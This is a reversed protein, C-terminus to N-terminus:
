HVTKPAGCCKKFKKGSGCPCPDNRGVKPAAGLFGPHLAPIDYRGLDRRLQNFLQAVEWAKEAPHSALTRWSASSELTRNLLEFAEDKKRSDILMAALNVITEMSLPNSAHAKRLCDLAAKPRNIGRLINGLRFLSLWDDPNDRIKGRLDAYATALPQGAGGSSTVNGTTVLSKINKEGAEHACAVRLLEATLAMRAMPQFEFEEWAGCSLCPFEDAILPNGDKDDVMVGRADYDNTEGCAPCCLSLRLTDRDSVFGSKYFNEMAKQQRERQRLIREHVEPLDSGEADLLRCLRYYTGDIFGQKRRLEPRLKEILRQDPAARALDCWREIDEHILEDFCRLAFDAVADGGVDAIASGGYIKQTLDLEDWQAILADRAPEGINLLAEKAAECLYDGKTEGICGILPQTFEMWGLDGMLRALIIGGFTDQVEKIRSVLAVAVEERPFSKLRELLAGYHINTSVDLALLAIADEISLHAADVTKREFAAAVGALALAALEVPHENNRFVKSQRITDWALTSEPSRGHHTELLRLAAPLPTESLVIEDMEALPADSDFLPALETFCAVDYDDRCMFYLDAYADHGFLNSAMSNVIRELRGEKEAFSGDLLRPLIQPMLQVAPGFAHHRISSASFEDKGWSMHLAKELMPLADEPPLKDMYGLIVVVKEFSWPRATELYRGFTEAALKPLISALVRAPSNTLQSPWAGWQGAITSAFMSFRRPPIYLFMLSLVDSDDADIWRQITVDHFWQNELQERLESRLPLGHYYHVAWEMMIPDDLLTAARSIWTHQM